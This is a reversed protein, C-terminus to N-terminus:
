DWEGKRHARLGAIDPWDNEDYFECLREALLIRSIREQLGLFEISCWLLIRSFDLLDCNKKFVDRLQMTACNGKLEGSTM